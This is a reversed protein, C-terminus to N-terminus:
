SVVRTSVSLMNRKVVKRAMGTFLAKKSTLTREPVCVVRDRPSTNTRRSGRLIVQSHPPTISWCATEAWWLAGHFLLRTIHSHMHPEGNHTTLAHVCSIVCQSAAKSAPQSCTSETALLLLFFSFSKMVAHHVTSFLGGATICCKVLLFFFFLREAIYRM